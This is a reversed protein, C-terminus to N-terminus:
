FDRELQGKVRPKMLSSLDYGAQNEFIALRPKSKYNEWTAVCGVWRCSRCSLVVTRLFMVWRAAQEARTSGYNWEERRRRAKMKSLVNLWAPASRIFKQYQRGIVGGWFFFVARHHVHACTCWYRGSSGSGRAHSTLSLNHLTAACILLVSFILHWSQLATKQWRLVLYIDFIIILLSFSVLNYYVYAQGSNSPIIHRSM